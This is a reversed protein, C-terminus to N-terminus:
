DINGPLFEKMEKIAKELDRQMKKPTQENALSSMKEMAEVAGFLSADVNLIMQETKM